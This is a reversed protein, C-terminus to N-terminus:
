EDWLAVKVLPAFLSSSSCGGTGGDCSCSPPPGCRNCGNGNCLTATNAAYLWGGPGVLLPISIFITQQPVNATRVTYVLYDMNQARVKQIQEVQQIWPMRARLAKALIYESQVLQLSSDARLAVPEFAPDFTPARQAQLLIPFCLGIGAFLLTHLLKLHM